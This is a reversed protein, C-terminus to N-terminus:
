FPIYINHIIIHVTCTTLHLEIPLKTMLGDKFKMVYSRAWNMILTYSSYFVLEIWFVRTSFLGAIHLLRAWGGWIIIDTAVDLAFAAAPIAFAGILSCVVSAPKFGIAHRSGGLVDSWPKSRVALTYRGRNTSRRAPPRGRLVWWLKQTKGRKCYCVCCPGVSFLSFFIYFLEIIKRNGRREKKGNNIM